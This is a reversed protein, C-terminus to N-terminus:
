KDEHGTLPVLRYGNGYISRAVAEGEAGCVCHSPDCKGPGGGQAMECMAWTVMEAFQEQSVDTM